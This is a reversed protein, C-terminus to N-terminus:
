FILEPSIQFNKKKTKVQSYIHDQSYAGARSMEPYTLSTYPFSPDDVVHWHFMNLKNWSAAEILRKLTSISLFHRSTDLM